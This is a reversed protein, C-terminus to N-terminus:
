PAVIQEEWQAEADDKRIFVTRRNPEEGLQVWDITFPEFVVMAFNSLATEYNKKDADTKLDKLNPVERPWKSPEDYSSIPSGPPVPACWSAKMAPKM